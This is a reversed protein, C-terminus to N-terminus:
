KGVDAAESASDASVPAPFDRKNLAQSDRISLGVVVGIVAAVATMGQSVLFSSWSFAPGSAVGMFIVSIVLNWSLVCFGRRFPFATQKALCVFVFLTVVIMLSPWLLKGFENLQRWYSRFASYLFLSLPFAVAFSIFNWLFVYKITFHWDFLGPQDKDEHRRTSRAQEFVAAGCAPCALLARPVQAGCGTCHKM